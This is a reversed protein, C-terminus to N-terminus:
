REDSMARWKQYDAEIHEAWNPVDIESSTYTGAAIRGKGFRDRLRTDESHEVVEAALHAPIFLVGTPTGLVVDGPLVTAQGIRVPVNVGALTVDHIASPDVGRTFVAFDPLELIRQLDRIGGDVVFGTHARAHIATSLNDGAFTGDKIKGFLDVVLVDNPVLTEIVWTNQGGSRGEALGREQVLEHFDPRMPVFVATVARGVLIQEPHLNLWNGEFQFHYGHRRLVSWAEETTVLKMRELLEDPVRPRGDPLREGASLRTLEAVKDPSNFVV